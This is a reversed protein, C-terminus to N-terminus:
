STGNLPPKHVKVEEPSFSSVIIALMVVLFMTVGPPLSTLFLLGRRVPSKAMLRLHALSSDLGMRVAALRVPVTEAMLVSPRIEPAVGLAPLPNILAAVWVAIAGPQDAPPSPGLQRLVAELHRPRAAGVLEEWEKLDAMLGQAVAVDTEINESPRSEPDVWSVQALLYGEPQETAEVIKFIRQGVIQVQFRGDPLAVCDEMFAEVGFPLYGRQQEFGVMGFRHGSSM